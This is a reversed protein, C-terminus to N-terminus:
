RNGGPAPPWPQAYDNLLPQRLRVSPQDELTQWRRPRTLDVQYGRGFGGILSLAAWDADIYGVPNFLRQHSHDRIELHLHPASVCTLQSDGTKGIVQGRKVRQGVKLPSRELLHGYLSSLNGAHNIVLNHPPSGHPGDVEAVVGDGIAVVPTGCPASFDLGFHLGQGNRYTTARQRYASTTNGYLQGLLWTDPGPNGQLPLGFQRSPKAIRADPIPTGTHASGGSILLCVALGPLAPFRFM